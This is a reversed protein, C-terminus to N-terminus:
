TRRILEAASQIRKSVLDLERLVEPEPDSEGYRSRVYADTLAHVDGDHGDLVRRAVPAFEWPTVAHERESGLEALVRLFGHYLARVGTERRARAAAAGRVRRYLAGLWAAVEGALEGPSTEIERGVLSPDVTKSSYRRVARALWFAALTVMAALLGLRMASALWAPVDSLAEPSEELFLPERTGALLAGRAALAESLAESLPRVLFAMVEMALTAVLLVARAMVAPLPALWDLAASAADFSVVASLLWAGVLVILIAGGVVLGWAPGMAAAEGPRAAEDVRSLAMAALGLAAASAVYPALNVPTALQGLAAVVGLAVLANTVAGRVARPAGGVTAHRAARWWVVVASAFTVGVSSLNGIDSVLDRGVRVVWDGVLPEGPLLGIRVLIFGSLVAGTVATLRGLPQSRTTSAAILITALAALLILPATHPPAIGPSAAAALTRLAASLVVADLVSLLLPLVFGRRDLRV